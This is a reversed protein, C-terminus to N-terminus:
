EEVPADETFQVEPEEAVPTAAAKKKKAPAAPAEVVPAPINLHGKAAAGRLHTPLCKGCYYVTSVRADDLVYIADADCNACKM